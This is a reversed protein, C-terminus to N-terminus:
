AASMEGLLKALKLRQKLGIDKSNMARRLAGAGATGAAKLKGEADADGEAAKRVLDEMEAQRTLDINNVLVYGVRKVESGMGAPLTLKLEMLEDLAKQTRRWSMSGVKAMDAQWCREFVKAQAETLGARRCEETLSGAPLFSDARVMADGKLVVEGPQDGSAAPVRAVHCTYIEAGVAVNVRLDLLEHATHNHVVPHGEANIFIDADPLGNRAGEYFLFREHEGNVVISGTSGERSYGAWHGADVAHLEPPAFKDRPLDDAYFQINDWQATAAGTRRNPKPYMWTLKGSTFRVDLDFVVDRDCAFYLVPKRIKVPPRPPKPEPAPVPAPQEAPEAELPVESADYYFAPVDDPGEDSGDWNMTAVGWEYVKLAPLSPQDRKAEDSKETAERRAPSKRESPDENVEDQAQVAFQAAVGLLLIAALPFLRRIRM